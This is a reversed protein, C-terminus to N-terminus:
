SFSELLSLRSVESPKISARSAYYPCVGIKRGLAGLDEIDRIKALSYDRFDNLLSENDKSPLFPCKHDKPTEPQQLELCRENIASVNGFRSVNANICLHKRSGLPIHKVTGKASSTGYPIHGQEVAGSIAPFEIRRAEQVLQSLQSHTRSCFYVKLEDAPSLDETESPSDFVLGLKEMMQMSASSVGRHGVDHLQRKVNSNEADSEYENLEFIALDEPRGLDYTDAKRRKPNPLNEYHQKQRDEKARILELRREVEARKELLAARKQNHAHEKVWRPEDSNAELPSHELLVEEQAGHLWTLSSCILSLTKGTGTPSEFVGVKGEVVCDYIANMLQIQIEYPTYPHHYDRADGM